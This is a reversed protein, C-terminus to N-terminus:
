GREDDPDSGEDPGFESDLIVDFVSLGARPPQGELARHFMGLVVSRGYKDEWMKKLESRRQNRTM